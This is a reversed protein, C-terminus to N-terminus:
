GDGMARLLADWRPTSDGPWRLAGWSGWKTPAYIDSYHAFVGTGLERWGALLRDYLVGMQPSYNFHILFETLATDDVMPGIGVVHSGGEYVILKKWPAAVV